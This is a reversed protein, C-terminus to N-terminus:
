HLKEQPAVSFLHIGSFYSDDVDMYDADPPEEHSPLNYRLRLAGLKCAKEVM